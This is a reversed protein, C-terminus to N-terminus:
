AAPHLQHFAVGQLLALVAASQTKEFHQIEEQMKAWGKFHSCDMGDYQQLQWLAALGQAPEFKDAISVRWVNEKRLFQKLFSTPEASSSYTDPSVVVIQNAASERKVEDIFGFDVASSRWVDLPILKGGQVQQVFTVVSIMSDKLYVSKLSMPLRAGKEIRPPRIVEMVSATIRASLQKVVKNKLAEIDTTSKM